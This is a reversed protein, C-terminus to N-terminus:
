KAFLFWVNRILGDTVQYAAVAEVPQNSLGEVREQDIVKDGLVMRNVLQAHLKPLKFLKDGYTAVLAAKGQMVPTLSPLNYIKVDEAYTASFRTIDKANYADLQEQVVAEASKNM